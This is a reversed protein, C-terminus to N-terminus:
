FTPSPEVSTGRADARRMADAASPVSTDGGDTALPPLGAAPRPDATGDLADVPALVLASFGALALTVVAVLALRTGLALAATTGHPARRSAAGTAAVPSHLATAM